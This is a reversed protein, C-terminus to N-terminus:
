RPGGQPLSYGRLWNETLAKAMQEDSLRGDAAMLLLAELLEGQPKGTVAAMVKLRKATDETMRITHRKEM